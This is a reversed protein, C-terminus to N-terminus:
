KAGRPAFIVYKAKDGILKVSGGPKSVATLEDSFTTPNEEEVQGDVRAEVFAYENAQDVDSTCSTASAVAARLAVAGITVGSTFYVFISAAPLWTRYRARALRSHM